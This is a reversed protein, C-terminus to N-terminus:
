RIVTGEAASGDDGPELPLAAMRRVGSADMRMVRVVIVAFVAVFLLLSVTPYVEIGVIGRLIDNFM